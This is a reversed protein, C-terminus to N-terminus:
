SHERAELIRKRMEEEYLDKIQKLGKKGLEKAATKEVAALKLLLSLYETKLQKGAFKLEQADKEKQQIYVTFDQIFQGLKVKSNRASTKLQRLIEWDIELQTFKREIRDFDEKTTKYLWLLYRFKLNKKEQAQM